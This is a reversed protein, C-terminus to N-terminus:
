ETNVTIQVRRNKQRGEPDDTGDPKENAAVPAKEGLGQATMKNAVGKGTLWDVVSQARRESLKQNYSDSGKADTHGEILVIAQPYAALVEGVKALAPGAEPRLDAKDFDFLVDAALDIKIQKEEVTAGLEELAAEVPSVVGALGAGLGKIELIKGDLPLVKGNLPLIKGSLQLVKGKAGPPVPANPDLEQAAAGGVAVFGMFLLLLLQRGSFPM